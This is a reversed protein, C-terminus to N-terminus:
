VVFIRLRKLDFLLHPVAIYSAFSLLFVIVYLPGCERKKEIPM